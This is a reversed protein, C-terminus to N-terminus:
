FSSGKLNEKIFYEIAKVDHNTTEEIKKVRNAAVLDFYEYLGRIEKLEMPKWVRTGQLKLQNCIFIFWEVEVILRYHM